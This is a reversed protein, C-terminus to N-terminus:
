DREDEEKRKMIKDIMMLGPDFTYALRRQRRHEMISPATVRVASRASWPDRPVRQTSPDLTSLRTM